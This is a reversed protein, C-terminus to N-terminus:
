YYGLGHPRPSRVEQGVSGSLGQGSSGQGVARRYVDTIRVKQAKGDAGAFGSGLWGEGGGAGKSSEQGKNSDSM